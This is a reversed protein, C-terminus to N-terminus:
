LIDLYIERLNKGVYTTSTQSLPRNCLAVALFDDSRYYIAFSNFM